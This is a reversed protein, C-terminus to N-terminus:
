IGTGQAVRRAGLSLHGAQAYGEGLKERSRGVPSSLVKLFRDRVLVAVCAGLCLVMSPRVSAKSPAGANDCWCPALM